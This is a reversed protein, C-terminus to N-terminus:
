SLAQCPPAAIYLYCARTKSKAMYTKTDLRLTLIIVKGFNIDNDLYTILLLM